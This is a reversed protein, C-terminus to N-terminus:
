MSTTGGTYIIYTSDDKMKMKTKTKHTQNSVTHYGKQPNKGFFFNNLLSQHLLIISWQRKICLCFTPYITNNSAM